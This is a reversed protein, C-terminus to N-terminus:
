SSSENWLLHIYRQLYENCGTPNVRALTSLHIYISFQIKHHFTFNPPLNFRSMAAARQISGWWLAEVTVRALTPMKGASLWSEFRAFSQRDVLKFTCMMKSSIWSKKYHFNERCQKMWIIQFHSHSHAFPNYCCRLILKESSRPLTEEM